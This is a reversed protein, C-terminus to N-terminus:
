LSEQKVAFERNGEICSLPCTFVYLSGFDAESRVFNLVQPMVQFEFVRTSGCGECPPAALVPRRLDSYWFPAGRLSYRLVQKQVSRTAKKLLEFSFDREYRHYKDIVEDFDDEESGLIEEEEDLPEEVLGSLFDDDFLATANKNSVDLTFLAQVAETIDSSEEVIELGLEKPQTVKTGELMALLDDTDPEADDEFPAPQVSYYPNDEPLQQRIILPQFCAQCIFVYLYRHFAHPMDELVVYLQLLFTPRLTCCEPYATDPLLWLPEGGVKGLPFDQIRQTAKFPVGLHVVM